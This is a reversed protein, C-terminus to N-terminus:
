LLQGAEYFLTDYFISLVEEGAHEKEYLIKIELNPNQSLYHLQDATFKNITKIILEADDKDFNSRVAKIMNTKYQMILGFNYGTQGQKRVSEVFIEWSRKTQTSPNFIKPKLSNFIPAGMTYPTPTPYKEKREARLRNTTKLLRMAENYEYKTVTLNPNIQIPEFAGKNQIRKLSNLVKNYDDRTTITKITDKIGVTEPLKLNPYKNRAERVTNNFARIENVLKQKDQPTYKIQYLRRRPM